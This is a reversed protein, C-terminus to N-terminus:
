NNNTIETSALARHQGAVKVILVPIFKQTLVFVHKLDFDQLHFTGIPEHFKLYICRKESYKYLEQGPFNATYLTSVTVEYQNVGNRNRLFM